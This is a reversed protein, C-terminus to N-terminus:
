DAHGRPSPRLLVLLCPSYPQNFHYPISTYRHSDVAGRQPDFSRLQAPQPSWCIVVRVCSVVRSTSLFLVFLLSFVLHLVSLSLFYSLLSYHTFSISLSTMCRGCSSTSIDHSACIRATMGKSSDIRIFGNTITEM